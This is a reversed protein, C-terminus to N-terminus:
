SFVKSYNHPWSATNLIDAPVIRVIPRSEKSVILITMCISFVHVDM